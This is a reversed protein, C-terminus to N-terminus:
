QAGGELISRCHRAIAEADVDGNKQFHSLAESELISAGNGTYLAVYGCALRLAEAMERQQEYIAGAADALERAADARAAESMLHGNVALNFLAQNM